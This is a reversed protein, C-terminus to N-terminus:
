TQLYDQLSDTVYALVWLDSGLSVQTRYFPTTVYQNQKGSSTVMINSELQTFHWCKLYQVVANHGVKSCVSKWAIKFSKWLNVTFTEPVPNTPGLLSISMEQQGNWRSTLHHKFKARQSRCKSLKPPLVDTIQFNGIHHGLVILRTKSYYRFLKITWISTKIIISSIKLMWLLGELDFNQEWTHGLAIMVEIPM